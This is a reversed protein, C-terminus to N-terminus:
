TQRRHWSYYLRVEERWYEEDTGRNPVPHLRKKAEHLEEKTFRRLKKEIMRREQKGPMECYPHRGIQYRPSKNISM